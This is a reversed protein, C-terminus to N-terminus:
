RARKGKIKKAIDKPIANPDVFDDDLDDVRPTSKTLKGRCKGTDTMRRDKCFGFQCWAGDCEDDVWTCWAAKQGRRKIIKLASPKRECRFKECFPTCDQLESQM